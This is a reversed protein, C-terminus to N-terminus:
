REAAPPRWRGWTRPTTATPTDSNVTITITGGAVDANVTGQNIFYAEIHGQGQITNDKNM